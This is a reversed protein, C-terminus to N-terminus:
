FETEDQEEAEQLAMMEHEHDLQLMDEEEATQNALWVQIREQAADFTGPWGVISGGLAAEIDQVALTKSLGYALIDLIPKVTDMGGKYDKMSDVGFARHITADDADPITKARAWFRGHASKPWSVWGSAPKPTEAKPSEALEGTEADVTVTHADPITEIETEDLWGLGVISLTVRRKAKTEAKMLANALNDGTKGKVAVVGLSEDVRGEGNTAKCTVSYLDPTLDRATIQVSIGDRKRLQDTCDRRAYLVLRGNLSIYEFPRTLPNLGLSKCTALYYANRESPTLKALDGVAIVREMIEANVDRTTVQNESM